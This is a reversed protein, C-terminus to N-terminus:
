SGWDGEEVLWGQAPLLCSERFTPEDLSVAPLGASAQTWGSALAGWPDWARSPGQTGSAQAQGAAHGSHGPLLCQPEQSVTQVGIGTNISSGLFGQSGVQGPISM